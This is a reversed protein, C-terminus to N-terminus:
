KFCPAESVPNQREELPVQETTGLLFLKDRDKPVMFLVV